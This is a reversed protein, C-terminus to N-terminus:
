VAILQRQAEIRIEEKMKRIFEEIKRNLEETKLDETGTAVEREEGEEDDQQEQRELYLSSGEEKDVEDHKTALDIREGERENLLESETAREEEEAAFAANKLPEDISPASVEEDDLTAAEIESLPPTSYFSVSSSTSSKALFALIGNCILFMYKRDLSHTFFSFSYAFLSLGSSNCLLFCFIVCVSILLHLTKKIFLNDSHKDPTQLKNEKNQDM